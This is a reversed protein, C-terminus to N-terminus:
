IRIQIHNEITINKATLIVIKLLFWKLRCPKTEPVSAFDQKRKEYVSSSGYRNGKGAELNVIIEQTGNFFITIDQTGRFFNLPRWRWQELKKTGEM